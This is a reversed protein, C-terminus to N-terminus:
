LSTDLLDDVDARFQVPDVPRLRRWRAVLAEASLAQRQVPILVAVPRGDRTVVLEEGAVVRDIVDGGHNRLDRITVEAM